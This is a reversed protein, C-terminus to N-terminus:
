KLPAGEASVTVKARMPFVKDAYDCTFSLANDGSKLIPLPGTPKFTKLCVGAGSFLRCDDASRCEIYMGTEMEVPFTTKQGNVVVTPNSSKNAKYVLAKIPGIKVNCEKGAPLNNLWIQMQRVDNYRANGTYHDYVHYGGSKPWKYDSIRVSESELLEFFKWGKFDVKVYNSSQFSAFGDGSFPRFDIIEGNGDGYIWVGLGLRSKFDIPNPFTQTLKTWTADQSSTGDSKATIEFAPEKTAPVIANSKKVSATIGAAAKEFKLQDCNSADLITMASSDRYPYLTGLAEIRLQVPQDAFDNKVTWKASEHDLGCIKHKDFFIPKFKWTNGDKFLRFEKGPIRLQACIDESFYKSLRLEEYQKIIAIFEKWVPHAEQVDKGVSGIFSFGANNGIMKCGIYEIDDWYMNEYKPWSNAIFGWWGLQLPLYLGGDKMSGYKLIEPWHGMWCGHQYEENAKMSAIHIDMFRKYGRHGMDWAQYRNRYHWWHHVMGAYEVGIPKKLRKMVEFIFKDGYYWYNEKGWMHQVGEIADFYVGDFGCDEVIEATKAAIEDFLQSDPRPVYMGSWYTKLWGVSAADAHAAAKTGQFGRTCGTFKYPAEKTVGTFEIIEDGIRITRNGVITWGQETSVNATSEKVVIETAKEDISAALTFSSIVDLDPHPIPQVYKSEISIFMTYTHLLSSIGEKHLKDVVKKYDKWGNPFRVPDMEFSGFLFFYPKHEANKKPIRWAGHKIERTGHNDIQTFGFQKLLAVWEDVTEDCLTGANILYSGFGEKSQLAWAGGQDSFPVDPAAKTMIDRITPLIAKQEVGVMAAKAKAFGFRHYCAAWLETNLAPLQYVHTHLNLSLACAAFPEYPKAELTLPVNLFAFEDPQGTVDIVEFLIRGKEPTVNVSATCDIGKFMYRLVAGDFGVSSPVFVKDGKKVYACYAQQAEGGIKAYNKGSTKDILAVNKGEPSVEYRFTDCQFVINNSQASVTGVSWLSVALIVVSLWVKTTMSLRM